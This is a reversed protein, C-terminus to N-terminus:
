EGFAYALSTKGTGSMGQLIILKTVSLGGIFRRIDKIDYYLKLNNAAYIRFSECLEKLTIKDNYTVKPQNVSTQDIKTLMYFRSEDKERKEDLKAEKAYTLPNFVYNVPQNVTKQEVKKEETKYKFNREHKKESENSVVTIVLLILLILTVIAYVLIANKSTLLESFKFLLNLNNM